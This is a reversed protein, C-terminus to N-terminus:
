KKKKFFVFYWICFVIIGISIVGFSVWFIVNTNDSTTSHTKESEEKGIKNGSDDFEQLGIVETNESESTEPESLNSPNVPPETQIPETINDIETQTNEENQTIQESPYTEKISTIFDGHGPVLDSVTIYFIVDRGMATVFVNCRIISNENNVKIRFDATNDISKDGYKEQMCTATAKKGDVQFRPNEINDMLRLRVTVYTNGNEDVEVLAKKHTASETMGQGIGPNKGSDEIEGTEPHKYHPQATAIYVGNTAANSLIATTGALLALMVVMSCLTLMIKRATCINM